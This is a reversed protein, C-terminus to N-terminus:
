VSASMSDQSASPSVSPSSPKSRMALRSPSMGPLFENWREKLFDSLAKGFIENGVVHSKEDDAGIAAREVEAEAFFNGCEPAEQFGEETRQVGACIAGREGVGVEGIEAAGDNGRESTAPAGRARRM